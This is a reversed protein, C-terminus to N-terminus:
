NNYIAPNNPGGLHNWPKEPNEHDEPDALFGTFIYIM